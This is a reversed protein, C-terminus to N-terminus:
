PVTAVLALSFCSNKHIQLTYINGRREREYSELVLGTIRRGFTQEHASSKGRQQPVQFGPVSEPSAIVSLGM